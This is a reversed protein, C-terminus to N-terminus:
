GRKRLIPVKGLWPWTPAFCPGTWHLICRGVWGYRESVHSFIECRWNLPHHGTDTCGRYVGRAGSRVAPFATSHQKPALSHPPAPGASCSDRRRLSSSSYLAPRAAARPRAPRRVTLQSLSPAPRPSHRWARAEAAARPWTPSLATLGHLGPLHQGAAEHGVQHRRDRGPGPM